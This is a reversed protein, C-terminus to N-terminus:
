RRYYGSWKMFNQGESLLPAFSVMGAMLGRNTEEAEREQRRRTKVPQPTSV